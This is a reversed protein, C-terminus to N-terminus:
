TRRIFDLAEGAIGAGETAAAQWPYRKKLEEEAYVDPSPAETITVPAGRGGGAQAMQAEQWNVDNVQDQPALQMSQYTLVMSDIDEQNANHGIISQASKKFISQLDAANTIKRVPIQTPGQSQDGAAATQMAAEALVQDIKKGQANAQGLANTYAQATEPDWKGYVIKTKAPYFGGNELLHQMEALKGPPLSSILYQDGDFYRPGVGVKQNFNSLNVMGARGGLTRRLVPVVYDSPVGIPRPGTTSGSASAVAQTLADALLAGISKDKDGM